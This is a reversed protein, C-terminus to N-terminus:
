SLRNKGADAAVATSAVAVASDAAAWALAEALDAATDVALLPRM